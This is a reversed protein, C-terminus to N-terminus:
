DIQVAAAIAVFSTGDFQYPVVKTKGATGAIAPGQMGTGPTLTESGTAKVKLILEAGVRLGSAITLNLTCNGTLIAPALVTKRNDISVALAAAYAPTQLDADGFPWQIKEM